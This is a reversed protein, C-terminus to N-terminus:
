IQEPHLILEWQGAAHQRVNANLNSDEAICCWCQWTAPDVPLTDMNICQHHFAFRCTSCEVDPDVFALEADDGQHIPMHPDFCAKCYTYQNENHEASFTHWGDV